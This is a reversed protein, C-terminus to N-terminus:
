VSPHRPGPPRSNVGGHAFGLRDPSLATDRLHDAVSCQAPYLQAVVPWIGFRDDHM